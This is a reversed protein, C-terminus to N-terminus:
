SSVASSELHREKFKFIEDVARKAGGAERFLDGIRRSNLRYSEDALVRRVAERMTQSTVKGKKLYVGAGVNWVQRAIMAHELTTPIVVMPVGYYMSESVTNWGGHTLCVSANQLVALQQPVWNCVMVNDPVGTLSEASIGRGTTLIVQCDFDRFADFCVQFFPRDLNFVTGLSVFVLKDHEVNQVPSDASAHRDVVPPGVFKFHADFREAYPQFLRSVFVISLEASGSAMKWLSQEELGYRKQIDKWIQAVKVMDKVKSAVDSLCRPVFGMGRLLWASNSNRALSTILSVAPLNLLLAICRGWFAPTDYIIYDPADRHIRELDLDLVKQTARMILCYIETLSHPAHVVDTMLGAGYGRYDAGIRKIEKEFIPSSYCIVHEGRDSLEQVLPQIMNTHGYQPVSFLVVKSMLNKEEAQDYWGESSV